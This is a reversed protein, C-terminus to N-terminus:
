NRDLTAVVSGSLQVFDSVYILTHVLATCDLLALHHVALGCCVVALITHM